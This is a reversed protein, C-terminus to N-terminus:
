TGNLYLETVGWFNSVAHILILPLLKRDLLLYLAGMLIAFLGTSVGGAADQYLHGIAFAVSSVAVLPIAANRGFLDMGWGVFFGRFAIEEVIGGFLMAFILLEMYAGADGHVDAFQSLDIKTGTMSEALTDFAPNVVLGVFTGLVLGIIVTTTWNKYIMQFVAQRASSSMMLIAATSGLWLLATLDTEYLLPLLPMLWLLWLSRRPWNNVPDFVLKVKM